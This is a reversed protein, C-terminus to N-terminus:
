KENGDNGGEDVGNWKICEIRSSYQTQQSSAKTQECATEREKEKASEKKNAEKNHTKPNQVTQENASFTLVKKKKERKKM